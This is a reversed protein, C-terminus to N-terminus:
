SQFLQLPLFVTNLVDSISRTLGSEGYVVKQAHEAEFLHRQSFSYRNIKELAYEVELQRCLAHSHYYDKPDLRMMSGDARVSTVVVHLHTHGADQHRYVVYPDDEFGMGSMYRRAVESLVASDLNERKGFNLTIHTGHDHLRENFSSRQRFRALIDERTLQDHDKLFNEAGIREAKGKGVKQENYRLTTAIHSNHRIRALM